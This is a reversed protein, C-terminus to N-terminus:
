PAVGQGGGAMLDTGHCFSSEPGALFLVAYAIERPDALRGAIRNSEVLSREFGEPDGAADIANRVAPTNTVGPSVCNVRIRPGYEVAMQRTLGLVGGKSANYAAFGPVGHTSNISCMNVITGGGRERMAPIVAKSILYIGTLNTDVVRAWSDAECEHVAAFEITAACNVLVDVGGLEATAREVLARGSAEVRVDVEVALAAGGAASISQAVSEAGEAAIDAVVVAAGEEGFLRAIAEGIGRAAGTVVAVKGSLRGRGTSGM